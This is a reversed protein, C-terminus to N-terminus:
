DDSDEDQILIDKWSVGEDEDGDEYKIFATGNDYDIKHVVGDFWSGKQQEGSWKARVHMGTRLRCEVVSKNTKGKRAKKLKRQASRKKSRSVAESASGKTHKAIIAAETTKKKEQKRLQKAVALDEKSRKRNKQNSDDLDLFERLEEGDDHDDAGGCGDSGEGRGRTGHSHTDDNSKSQETEAKAVDKEEDELFSKGGNAEYMRIIRRGEERIILREREVDSPHMGTAEVKDATAADKDDNSEVKPVTAADKDDNSEVKAATAADKDDNSEVKPATAAFQLVLLAFSALCLSSQM